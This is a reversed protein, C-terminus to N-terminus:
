PEELMVRFYFWLDDEAGNTLRKYVKAPPFIWTEDVLLGIAHFEENIAWEGGKSRRYIEGIYGGLMKCIIEINEDTPGKRFIKSLFGKPNAAHLKGAISEVQQVSEDSYDLHVDFNSRAFDVADAAYAVMMDNITPASM